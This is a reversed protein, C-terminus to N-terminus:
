REITVIARDEVMKQCKIDFCIAVKFDLDPDNLNMSVPVM